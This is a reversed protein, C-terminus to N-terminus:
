REGANGLANGARGAGESVADKAAAGYSKLKVGALGTNGQILQYLPNDRSAKLLLPKLYGEFIATSREGTAFQDLPTFGLGGPNVETPVLPQPGPGLARGNAQDDVQQRSLRVAEAALKITMPARALNQDGFTQWVDGRANKVWMGQENLYDHVLKLCVSACHDGTLWTEILAFPLSQGDL